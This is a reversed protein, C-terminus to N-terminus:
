ALESQQVTAHGVLGQQLLHPRQSARPACGLCRVRSGSGSRPQGLGSPCTPRLPSYATSHEFKDNYELLWLMVLSTQNSLIYQSVVSCSPTM